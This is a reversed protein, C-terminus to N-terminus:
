QRRLREMLANSSMISRRLMDAASLGGPIPFRHAIHHPGLKMERVSRDRTSPEREYVTRGPSFTKTILDSFTEGKPM